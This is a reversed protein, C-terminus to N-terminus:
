AWRSHARAMAPESRLILHKTLAPAPAAPVNGAGAYSVRWWRSWARSPDDPVLPRAPRTGGLRRFRQDGGSAPRDGRERLRPRRGRRRSLSGRAGKAALGRGRLPRRERHALSSREDRAHRLGPDVGAVVCITSPARPRRLEAPSRTSRSSPRRRPRTTATAARPRSTTSSSARGPAPSSVPRACSSRRRTCSALRSM